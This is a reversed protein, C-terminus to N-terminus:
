QIFDPYTSYHIKEGSFVPKNSNGEDLNFQNGGTLGDKREKRKQITILALNTKIISWYRKIVPVDTVAYTTIIPQYEFLLIPKLFCKEFLSEQPHNM